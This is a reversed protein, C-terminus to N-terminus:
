SINTPETFVCFYKMKVIFKIDGAAMNTGDMKTAILVWKFLQAPDGATTHSYDPDDLPDSCGFISKTTVYSRLKAQSKGGTNPALLQTPAAYRQIMRDDEAAATGSTSPYMDVRYVDGSDNIITIECKSGIITYTSYLDTLKSWLQANTNDVDEFQYLSNGKFNWTQSDAATITSSIDYAAPITVRISDPM